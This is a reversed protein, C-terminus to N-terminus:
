IAQCPLNQPRLPRGYVPHHDQSPIKQVGRLAQVRIQGDAQMGCSLLVPLTPSGHSLSWPSPTQPSLGAPFFQGLSDQALCEPTTSRSPSDQVQKTQRGGSSDLYPNLKATPSSLLVPQKSSLRQFEDPWVKRQLNQM